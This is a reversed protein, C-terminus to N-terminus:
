VNAVSGLVRRVQSDRDARMVQLAEKVQSAQVRSRRVTNLGFSM